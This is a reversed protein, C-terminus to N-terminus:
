KGDEKIEGVYECSLSKEVDFFRDADAVPLRDNLERIYNSINRNDRSLEKDLEQLVVDLEDKDDAHVRIRHENNIREVIAIEFLM